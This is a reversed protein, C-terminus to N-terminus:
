VLLESLALTANNLREMLAKVNDATYHMKNCGNFEGLNAGWEIKNWANKQNDDLAYKPKGNVKEIRFDRFILNQGCDDYCITSRVDCNNIKAESVLFYAGDDAFNRDPRKYFGYKSISIRAM